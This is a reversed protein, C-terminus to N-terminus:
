YIQYSRICRLGHNNGSSKWSNEWDGNTFYKSYAQLESIESSSWYYKNTDFGGIINKHNYMKNLEEKSPLFWDVYDNLVLSNCMSAAYVGPGQLNVITTTNSQGTGIETAVARTTIPSNICWSIYSLDSQDNIASIYCKGGESYFIIGGAVSDGITCPPSIPATACGLTQWMGNVYFEFCKTSTNFILLGEVPYTIANRQATTLRTILVGQTTSSIDLVASPDPSNGTTNIAVGQSLLGNPFILCLAVVVFCLVMENLKGKIKTKM